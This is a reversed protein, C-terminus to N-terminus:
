VEIPLPHVCAPDQKFMGALTRYLEPHRGALRGPAAFFYEGVVAFFEAPNKAAYPDIDTRGEEISRTHTEIMRSWEAASAPGALLRRPVGDVAGDAGDVKHLFEHIGVHAAEGRSEFARLLAPRSLIVESSQAPVMGILPSMRGQVNYDEDFGGPYILVEVMGEYEWDPYGFVPIVASAGVLVQCLDDVAIDVGSVKTEGLFIQVQQRFRGRESESLLRYFDVHRALIDRWASPFPHALLRRRGRAKRTRLLAFAVFSIAGALLAALVEGVTVVGDGPLDVAFIVAAALAALVAASMLSTTIARRYSEESFRM